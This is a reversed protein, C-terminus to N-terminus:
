QQVDILYDYGCEVILKKNPFFWGHAGYIIEIWGGSQPRYAKWAGDATKILLNQAGIIAIMGTEPDYIPGRAVENVETRSQGTYSVDLPEDTEPDFLVEVDHNAETVAMDDPLFIPEGEFADAELDYMQVYLRGDEERRCLTMAKGPGGYCIDYLEPIATRSVEGTTLDVKLIGGECPALNWDKGAALDHFSYLMNGEIYTDVLRLSGYENAWAELTVDLWHVGAEDITGIRYTKFNIGYLTNEGYSDILADVSSCIAKKKEDSLKDYEKKDYSVSAPVTTLKEVKGDQPNLRYIDGVALMRYAYDGARQLGYSEVEALQGVRFLTTSPLTDDAFAPVCGALILLALFIALTRKMM